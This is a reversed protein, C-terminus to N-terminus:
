KTLTNAIFAVAGTAVLSIVLGILSNTITQRASKTNEPEGQSTIYNFGGKIVFAVSVLAAIRLLIEIIALSVRGVVAQSDLKCTDDDVLSCGTPETPGTVACDDGGQPGIDLYKYWTPLGLFSSSGSCPSNGLCAKQVQEQSIGQGVEIVTGNPCTYPAGSAIAPRSVIGFGAAIGIIASLVMSFTLVKNIILRM